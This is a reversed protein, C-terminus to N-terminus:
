EAEMPWLRRIRGCATSHVFYLARNETASSAITFTSTATVPEASGSGLVTLGPAATSGSIPGTISGTTSILLHGDSTSGGASNIIADLKVRSQGIPDRGAGTGGVLYVYDYSHESSWNHKFTMTYSGPGRPGSPSSDIYLIQYTLNPYGYELTWNADNLGCWIANTSGPFILTAGDRLYDDNSADNANVHFLIDALSQDSATYPGRTGVVYEPHAVRHEALRLM